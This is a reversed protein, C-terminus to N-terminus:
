GARHNFCPRVFVSVNGSLRISLRRGDVILFSTQGSQVMRVACGQRLGLEALQHIRHPDGCVDAIHAEQGMQLLELPLLEANEEIEM